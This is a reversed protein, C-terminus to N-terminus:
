REITRQPRRRCLAVASDEPSASWHREAWALDMAAGVLLGGLNDHLERAMLARQHEATSQIHAILATVPDLLKHDPM